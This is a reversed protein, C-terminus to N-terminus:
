LDNGIVTFLAQIKGSLFTLAAICVVAILSLLLGYEVLTAGSDDRVLNKLAAKMINNM